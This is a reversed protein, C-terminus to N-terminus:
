LLQVGPEMALIRLDASIRQGIGLSMLQYKIEHWEPNEVWVMVETGPEANGAIVETDVNIETIVQSQVVHTKTIEENYM